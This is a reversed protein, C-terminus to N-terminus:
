GLRHQTVHVDTHDHSDEGRDNDEDYNDGDDGPPVALGPHTRSGYEIQCM